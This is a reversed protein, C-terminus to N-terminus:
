QLFSGNERRDRSPPLSCSSLKEVNPSNIYEGLVLVTQRKDERLINM